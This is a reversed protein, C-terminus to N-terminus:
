FEFTAAPSEFESLVSIRQRFTILAQILAQVPAALVRVGASRSERHQSFTMTGQNGLRQHQDCHTERVPYTGM